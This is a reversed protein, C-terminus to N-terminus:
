STRYNLSQCSKPKIAREYSREPRQPVLFKKIRSILNKEKLLNRLYLRINTVANAFNAKYRYKRNQKIEINNIIIESVNYMLFTANIEQQILKRKKAHFYVLGMTYKVKNFATEEKWRYHYLEKFDELQFEDESLNTIITEYTDDTIKFRVIRFSLEYFDQTPGLFDFRSTTPVFVYKDKHAKIEKSQFRTLIRTVNMDFTGNKTKINTMIGSKTDIDKVRIAFKLNNEIFYALLNYNEYGRDATFISNQPYNKHNIISILADAERKKTSADISWDYFIHNLCDYLANVHYQCYPKGGGDSKVKTDDDMFPINVDSGDQALIYYGNITRYNAFSHVFLNNIRKFIAPDLLQRRQCMASTSPMDTCDSFFHSMESATSYNSFSLISDILIRAPLLRNRTFNSIPDHCFCQIGELTFDISQNLIKKIKKPSYYINSNSHKMM